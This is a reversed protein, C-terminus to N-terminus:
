LLASAGRWHRESKGRYLSNFVQLFIYSEAYKSLTRVTDIDFRM